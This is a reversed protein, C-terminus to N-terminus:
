WNLIYKAVNLRLQGPHINGLFVINKCHFILLLCHHIKFIVLWKLYLKRLTIESDISSFIQSPFLFLKTAKTTTTFKPQLHYLFVFCIISHLNNSITFLFFSLKNWTEYRFCNNIKKLIEIYAGELGIKRLLFYWIIIRLFPSTPSLEKLVM